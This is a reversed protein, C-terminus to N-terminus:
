QASLYNNYVFNGHFPRFSITVNFLATNFAFLHCVNTLSIIKIAYYEEINCVYYFINFFHFLRSFAQVILSDNRFSIFLLLRTEVIVAPICTSPLTSTPFLLITSLLLWEGDTRMYSVVFLISLKNSSFILNFFLAHVRLQKM